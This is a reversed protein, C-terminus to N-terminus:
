TGAPNPSTAGTERGAPEGRARDGTEGTATEGGLRAVERALRLLEGKMQDTAADQEVSVLAEAVKVPDGARARSADAPDSAPEPLTSATDPPPVAALTLTRGADPMRGKHAALVVPTEPEGDAGRWADASPVRVGPATAGSSFAHRRFYKGSVVGRHRRSPSRHFAPSRGPAPALRRLERAPRPETDAEVSRRPAPDRDPVMAVRTIEPPPAAAPLPAPKLATVAALAVVAAALATALGPQWAARWSSPRPPAQAQLRRSFDAWLDISVSRRAVDLSRLARQQAALEQRCRECADLHDSVRQNLQRPLDGDLYGPLLNDLRKCRM